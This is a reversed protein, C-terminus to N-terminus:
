EKKAAAEKAAWSAHFDAAAQKMEKENMEKIRTAITWKQGYPDTVSSMRDGWFMDAPAAKSEAGADVVRKYAVDVDQVYLYFAGVTAGQHPPFTDSIFLISDGIKLEGHMVKTGSPDKMVEGHVEAGLAKKYWDIAKLADAVAISPTVTSFGAPKWAVSASM